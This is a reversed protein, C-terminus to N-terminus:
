LLGSAVELLTSKGCGSPGVIGLVGAGPVELDIGDLALLDGFAHLLGRISVPPGAKGSVDLPESEPAGTTSLM